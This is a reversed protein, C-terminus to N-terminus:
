KGGEFIKVDKPNLLRLKGKNTYIIVRGYAIRYLEAMRLQRDNLGYEEVVVKIDKTKAM